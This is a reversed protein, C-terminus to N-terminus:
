KMKGILVVTKGKKNERQKGHFTFRGFGRVLITEHEKPEYEPKKIIKGNAIVKEELVLAKATDRSLNLVKSLIADMRVSSVSCEVYEEEPIIEKPFEKIEKVSVNNHKVKTLNEKVFDAVKELVFVYAEKEVTLIDGVQNREIGLNLIAGLYDRHTLHEAFKITKPAVHLLKIPFEEEYMLEKPDGFRIVVREAFEMGGWLKLEKEEAVSFSLSAGSPSHFETYTYVGQVRARELLERYRNKTQQEFSLRDQDM